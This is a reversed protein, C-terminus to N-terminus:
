SCDIRPVGTLTRSLPGARGNAEDVNQAGHFVLRSGVRGPFGRHDPPVNRPSFLPQRHTGTGYSLILFCLERLPPLYAAIVMIALLYLGGVTILQTALSRERTLSRAVAAISVWALTPTMLAWM